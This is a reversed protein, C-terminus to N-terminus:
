LNAKMYRALQIIETYTANDKIRNAKASIIAVNGKTYGKEPVVRDISATYDKDNYALPVKLVPCTSPIVIDEITLNFQIGERRARSRARNLIKREWPVKTWDAASRKCEKCKSTDYGSKCDYKKSFSQLPKEEQCHKCLTVPVGLM